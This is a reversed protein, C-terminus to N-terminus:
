WVCPCPLLALVYPLRFSTPAEIWRRGERVDIRSLKVANQAAVPCEARDIVCSTLSVSCFIISLYKENCTSIMHSVQRLHPILIAEANYLCQVTMDLIIQM